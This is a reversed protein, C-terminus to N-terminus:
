EANTLVNNCITYPGDHRYIYRIYINSSHSVKEWLGAFTRGQFRVTGKAASGFMTVVGHGETPTLHGSLLLGLLSYTGMSGGPSSM